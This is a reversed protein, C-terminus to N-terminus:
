SQLKCEGKKLTGLLVLQYTGTSPEITNIKATWDESARLINKIKDQVLKSSPSIHEIMDFDRTNFNEMFLNVEKKIQYSIPQYVM